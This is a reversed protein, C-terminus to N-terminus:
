EQRRHGINVGVWMGILAVVVLIVWGFLLIFWELALKAGDLGYTVGGFFGRVGMIAGYLAVVLLVLAVPACAGVTGWIWVPWPKHQRGM